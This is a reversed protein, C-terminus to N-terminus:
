RVGARLLAYHAAIFKNTKTRTTAIVHDYPLHRAKNCVHVCVTTCAHWKSTHHVTADFSCVKMAHVWLCMGLAAGSVKGVSDPTFDKNGTFKSLKKIMAEDLTDKNFNLLKSMFDSEGLAKKAEDWSSARKLATMVAADAVGTNNGRRGPNGILLREHKEIGQARAVVM